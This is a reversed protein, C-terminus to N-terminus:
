YMCEVIDTKVQNILMYEDAIRLARAKTRSYSDPIIHQKGNEDFWVACWGKAAPLKLDLKM